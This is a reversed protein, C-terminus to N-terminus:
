AFISQRLGDDFVFGFIKWVNYEIAKFFDCECRYGRHLNADRCWPSHKVEYGFHALDRIEHKTLGRM